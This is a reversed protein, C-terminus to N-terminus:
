EGARTAAKFDSHFCRNEHGMLMGLGKRARMSTLAGVGSHTPLSSPASVSENRTRKQAMDTAIRAIDARETAGRTCNLKDFLSPTQQYAARGEQM